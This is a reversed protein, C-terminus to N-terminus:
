STISLLNLLDCHTQNESLTGYKQGQTYSLLHSCMDIYSFYTQVYGYDLFFLCMMAFNKNSCYM